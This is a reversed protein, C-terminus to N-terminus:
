LQLTAFIDMEGALSDHKLAAVFINKVHFAVTPNRSKGYNALARIEASRCLAVDFQKFM